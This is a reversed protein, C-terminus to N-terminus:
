LSSRPREPMRAAMCTMSAFSTTKAWILGQSSRSLGCLFNAPTKSAIGEGQLPIFTSENTNLTFVNDDCTVRATGEVM